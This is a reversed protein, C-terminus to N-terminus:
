VSQFSWCGFQRGAQWSATYRRCYPINPKIIARFEYLSCLSRSAVSSSSRIFSHLLSVSLLWDCCCHRVFTTRCVNTRVCNVFYLRLTLFLVQNHETRTPCAASPIMVCYVAVTWCLVAACCLFIIIHLLTAKFNTSPRYFYEHVFSRVIRISDFRECASFEVM